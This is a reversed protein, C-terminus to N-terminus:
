FHPQRRRSLFATRIHVIIKAAMNSFGMLGGSTTYVKIPEGTANMKKHEYRHIYGM